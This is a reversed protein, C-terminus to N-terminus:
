ISKICSAAVAQAVDDNSGIGAIELNSVQFLSVAFLVAALPLQQDHLGSPALLVSLIHM